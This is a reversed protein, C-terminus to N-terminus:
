WQAVQSAPAVYIFHPTQDLVALSPDQKAFLWKSDFSFMLSLLLWALKELREMSNWLRGM